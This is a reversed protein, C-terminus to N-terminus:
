ADGPLFAPECHTRAKDLNLVRVNDLQAVRNLDYDNTLIGAGRRALQWKADVAEITSTSM